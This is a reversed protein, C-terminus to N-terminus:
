GRVTEVAPPREPEVRALPLSIRKFRDGGLFEFKRQFLAALRIDATAFFVQKDGRLAVERLYDLFSLTNLDDIHAVPDDILIVPPASKASDNLALFISLALAARQGTSVQNVAHFNGNDRNVILADSTFDGLSYEQPSHIQAFIRSVRDRISDFAEKTAGELSNQEVLKTLTDSARQLNARKKNDETLSESAKALESSRQDLTTRAQGDAQVAHRAKDFALLTTEVASGVDDFNATPALALAATVNTAHQSAAETLRLARELLGIQSTGAVQVSGVLAAALVDDIRTTLAQYQTRLQAARAAAERAKDEIGTVVVAIAAQSNVDVDAPLTPLVSDDRLREFGQTQVGQAQLNRLAVERTHAENVSAALAAAAAHAAELVAGCPTESSIQSAVAFAAIANITTVDQVCRATQERAIQLNRRFSETAGAEQSAILEDLRLSLESPVHDTKCVPCRSVEGSREIYAIAADHLDRRLTELSQGLQTSQALASQALKEHERADALRQAAVQQSGGVGEAVYEAALPPLSEGPWTRLTRRLESVRNNARELNAILEPVGAELLRIWRELLAKNADSAKVFKLEDAERKVLNDRESQLKKVADLAEQLRSLRAQIAQTTLPVESVASQIRGIDQRLAELRVRDGENLIPEATVLWAPALQRVSERYAAALNTAESPTSKLREVEAQLLAMSQQQQPLRETLSKLKTKLEDHLKSLYDWLSSTESGVLLKGLDERIAEPKDATSLRFAADTDLFNFRTFADSLATAQFDARGYWNNNRAKLVAPKVDATVKVPKGDEGDFTGEIGSVQATTDRRVRGCYLAEVAELLSTKGTGNSGVILNVRGFSFDFGDSSPRFSNISVRRLMGRGLADKVTRAAPRTPAIAFADGDAIRELTPKRSPQGLLLELSGEKLLAAWAQDVDGLPPAATSENAAPEGLRLALDDPAMVFKRAFHRDGEIRSKAREYQANTTSNPGAVFYMYSNWRLDGESNFFESGMLREQFSTLDDSRQVIADSLDFYAVAYPRGDHRREARLVGESVETVNELRSSIVERIDEVTRM